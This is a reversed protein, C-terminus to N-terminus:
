APAIGDGRCTGCTMRVSKGEPGHRPDHDIVYVGGDGNCTPCPHTFRTRPPTPGGDPMQPLPAGEGSPPPTFESPMIVSLRQTIAKFLRPIVDDSSTFDVKLLGCVDQLDKRAEKSLNM